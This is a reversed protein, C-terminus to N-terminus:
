CVKQRETLHTKHSNQSLIEKEKLCTRLNRVNPFTKQISSLLKLRLNEIQDLTKKDASEIWVLRDDEVELFRASVINKLESLSVPNPSELSFDLQSCWERWLSDKISALLIQIENERSSDSIKRTNQELSEPPDFNGELVKLLNEESLIWDLSVHWGRSGQGMLFPSAKIRECLTHWQTLDNKLYKDFLTKLQRKREATLLVEQGIHIKWLEQAKKVFGENFFKRVGPTHEKNTIKSPTETYTYSGFINENSPFNREKSDYNKLNSPFFKEDAKIYGYSTSNNSSTSDDTSITEDHFTMFIDRYVDPYTHGIASLDKHLKRLNIRYQTTKKWKDLPHPREDIWGHDILHKLYKRMTPPTAKLMTEEILENATKYIWGHRPHVNCDPNFSQEEELLLDFDRVRQTWYLLQNLVVASFHDGTLDVFERRIIAVPLTKSKEECLRGSLQISTSMM